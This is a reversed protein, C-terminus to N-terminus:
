PYMAASAYGMLEFRDGGTWVVRTSENASIACIMSMTM